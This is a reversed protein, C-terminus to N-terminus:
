YVIKLEGVLVEAVDHEGGAPYDDTSNIWWAAWNFVQSGDGAFWLRAEVYDGVRAAFRGSNKYPYTHILAGTTTSSLQLRAIGDSVTVNSAATSVANMTGGVNFWTPYWKSTDLRIGDFEDQFVLQWSGPP